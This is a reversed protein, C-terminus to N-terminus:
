QACADAGNANWAGSGDWTQLKEYREQLRKMYDSDSSLILALMRATDDKSAAHAMLAELAATAHDSFEEDDVQVSHAALLPIIDAHELCTKRASSSEILLSRLVFLTRAKLRRSAGGDPELDRSLAEMGGAQIFALQAEPTHQILAHMASIARVKETEGVPGAKVNGSHLALLRELAGGEFAWAQCPPNDKVVLAILEAAASRINGHESHELLQITPFLGNAFSHFGVAYDIKDCRDIAEELAAHKANAQDLTEEPGKIAEVIDKMSKSESEVMQSMIKELFAKKEPDMEQPGDPTPAQM